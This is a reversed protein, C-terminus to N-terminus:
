AKKGHLAAYAIDFNGLLNDPCPREGTIMELAARLREIEAAADKHLHFRDSATLSQEPDRLRDVIDSMEQGRPFVTQEDIVWTHLGTARMADFFFKEDM